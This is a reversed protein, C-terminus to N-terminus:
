ATSFSSETFIKDVRDKTSTKVSGIIRVLSGEKM